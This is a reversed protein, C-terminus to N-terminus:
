AALFHPLDAHAPEAIRVRVQGGVEDLTTRLAIIPKAQRLSQGSDPIL